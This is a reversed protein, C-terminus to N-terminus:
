TKQPRISPRRLWVNSLYFMRFKCQLFCYKPLKITPHKTWQFSWPCWRWAGGTRHLKQNDLKPHQSFPHVPIHCLHYKNNYISEEVFYIAKDTLFLTALPGRQGACTTSAITTVLVDHFSRTTTSWWISSASGWCKKVAHSYCSYFCHNALM